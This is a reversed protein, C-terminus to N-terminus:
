TNCEETGGVVAATSTTIAPSTIGATLVIFTFTRGMAPTLPLKVLM